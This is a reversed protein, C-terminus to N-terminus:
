KPQRRVPHKREVVRATARVGVDGAVHSALLHKKLLKPKRSNRTSNRTKIPAPRNKKNVIAKPEIANLGNGEIGIVGNVVDEVEDVGVDRRANQIVNPTV